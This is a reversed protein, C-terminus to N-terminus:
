RRAASPAHRVSTLSARMVDARQDALRATRAVVKTRSARTPAASGSPITSAGHGGGSTIDGAARASRVSRNTVGRVRCARSKMASSFFGAKAGYPLSSRRRPAESQAPRHRNRSALPMAAGPEVSTTNMPSEIVSFQASASASKKVAPRTLRPMPACVDAWSSTRNRASTTLRFGATTCMRAPVLSTAPLLPGVAGSSKWRLMSDITSRARALPMRTTRPLM